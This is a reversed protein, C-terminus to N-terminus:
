PRKAVTALGLAARGYPCRRLLACEDCRPDSRRCIQQGHRVILAHWENLRWVDAGVRDMFFRRYTEYKREGPALDLREFLRFSYADVVFTPQRAAYLTIADATEPGIGWIELLRARVVEADGDLLADVSGGYEDIVVQAFAQLKRAKVRFHGSPRVLDGLVDHPCDLLAECSMRDAAALRELAAAAGRWATNQTLIAGLCIELRQAEDDQSATPWWQQEGHQELLAGYVTELQRRTPARRLPSPARGDRGTPGTQLRGGASM